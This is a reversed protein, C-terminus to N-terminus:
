QVNNIAEQLEAVSIIKIGEDKAYHTKASGNGGLVLLTMKKWNSVVTQHCINANHNQLHNSLVTLCVVSPLGAMKTTVMGIALTLSM